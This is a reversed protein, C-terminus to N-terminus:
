PEAVKAALLKSGCCMGRFLGLQYSLDMGRHHGFGHFGLFSTATRLGRRLKERLPIPRRIAILSGMSHGIGYALRRNYEYTLRKAPIIHTLHLSTFRGMSWGADIGTLVLDWDECSQMLAGRRGLAQRKTDINVARAYIEAVERRVCLGAGCPISAYNTDCDSVVDADFDIIALNPLFPMLWPPPSHEFLGSIRGGFMGVHTLRTALDVVKCLYDHDLCTDDDVFVILNGCSEQVGRLRAHLLGERRETVLRIPFTTDSPLSLRPDSGNDVVILEWARPHLSQVYLADLVCALTSLQPNRTCLIVSVAPAESSRVRIRHDVTM